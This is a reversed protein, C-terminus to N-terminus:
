GEQAPDVPRKQVLTQRVAVAIVKGHQNRATHEFTVIGQGPRSKSERKDTILTEAYMTDGHRVPHPFKVESFGLNAVITGQTLQAVSLGILTSLTFMSNVLPEGFETGASYAADLHLAQTNMTLTTFLVNDAETVTRGPRHEYVAGLEFEEFWLGRQVVRKTVETNNAPPTSM